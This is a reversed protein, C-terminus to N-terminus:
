LFSLFLDLLPWYLSFLPQSHTYCNDFQIDLFRDLVPIGKKAYKAGSFFTKLTEFLIQKLEYLRNNFFHKNLLSFQKFFHRIVNIKKAYKCKKTQYIKSQGINNLIPKYNGLM